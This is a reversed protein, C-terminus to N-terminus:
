CYDKLRWHKRHKESFMSCYFMLNWMKLISWSWVKNSILRILYQIKGDINVLMAKWESPRVSQYFGFQVECGEGLYKSKYGDLPFFSRDVPTFRNSPIQRMVIDLGQVADQATKGNQQGELFKKLSEISVSAAFQIKVQFLCIVAVTSITLKIICTMSHWVDAIMQVRILQVEKNKLVYFRKGGFSLGKIVVM